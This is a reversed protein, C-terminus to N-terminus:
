LTCSATTNIINMPESAPTATQTQKNTATCEASDCVCVCCLSCSTHPSQCSDSRGAVHSTVEGPLTWEDPPCTLPLNDCESHLTVVSAASAIHTYCISMRHVSYFAEVSSSISYELPLSLFFVITSQPKFWPRWCPYSTSTNYGSCWPLGGSGQQTSAGANTM